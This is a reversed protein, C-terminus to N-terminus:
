IVRGIELSIFGSGPIDRKQKIKLTTEIILFFFTNQQIKFLQGMSDTNPHLSSDKLGWWVTIWDQHQAVLTRLAQTEDWNGYHVHVLTSSPWAAGAHLALTDCHIQDKVSDGLTHALDIPSHCGSTDKGGVDWWIVCVCRHWGQALIVRSMQIKFSSCHM